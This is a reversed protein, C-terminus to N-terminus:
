WDFQKIGTLDSTFVINAKIDALLQRVISLPHEPFEEDYKESEFTNAEVKLDDKLYKEMVVAERVGTFGVENAQIKIVYSCKKFPITFSGLYMLGGTKQPFKFITKIANYGGLTILEVCVFKNQYDSIQHQYFDHLVELNKVTPIDPEQVFFNLSLAVTQEPNIWRVIDKTEKNLEWDYAPFRVSKITGRSKNFFKFM